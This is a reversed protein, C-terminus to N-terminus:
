LPWNMRREGESASSRTNYNNRIAAQSGYMIENELTRSRIPELMVAGLNSEIDHSEKQKDVIPIRSSSRSISARASYHWSKAASMRDQTQSPGKLDSSLPDSKCAASRRKSALSRVTSGFYDPLINSVLAKLHPLSACM